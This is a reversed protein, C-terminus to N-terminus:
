ATIMPETVSRLLFSSGILFAWCILAILFAEIGQKDFAIMVGGILVGVSLFFAYLEFGPFFLPAIAAASVALAKLITSRDLPEGTFFLAGTLATTSLTLQATILLIIVIIPLM